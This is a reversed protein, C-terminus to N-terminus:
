KLRWVRVASNEKRTTYNGAGFAQRALAAVHPQGKNLLLSDGPKMQRLIHTLAKGGRSWKPPITVGKEIRLDPNNRSEKKTHM